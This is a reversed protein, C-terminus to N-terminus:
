ATRWVAKMRSPPWNEPKGTRPPESTVVKRFEELFNRPPGSTILFGEPTRKLIAVGGLQERIEPPICLRGKSDIKLQVEEM